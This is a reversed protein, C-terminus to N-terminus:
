AFGPMKEGDLFQLVRPPLRWGPPVGTEYTSVEDLSPELSDASVGRQPGWLDYLAAKAGEIVDPPIEARGATYTAKWPGFWMPLLSALRVTGAAPNVILEATTWAPGQPYVSAVSTVSIVPAEALRISTKVDGPVWEDTVTKTVCTGVHREILKTLGALTARLVNDRSTDRLDLFEKADAFSLVSRWQRVNFSDGYAANPVTTVASWEYHGATTPLYTARYKGTVDPPNTVTPSTTTGDPLTITLTVGTANALAGTDGTVDFAILQSAGLDIDGM